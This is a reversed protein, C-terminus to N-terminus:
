SYHCFVYIHVPKVLVIYPPSWTNLTRHIFNDNLVWTKEMQIRQKRLFLETCLNFWRTTAVCSDSMCIWTVRSFSTSACKYLSSFSFQFPFHQGRGRVHFISGHRWLGVGSGFPIGYATQDASERSIYISSSTSKLPFFSSRQFLQCCNLLWHENLMYPYKTINTLHIFISYQKSKSVTFM